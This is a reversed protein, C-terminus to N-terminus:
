QEGGMAEKIERLTSIVLYSYDKETCVCGTEDRYVGEGSRTTGIRKAQYKLENLETSLDM